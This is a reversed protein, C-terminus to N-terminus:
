RIGTEYALLLSLLSSVLHMNTSELVCLFLFLWFSSAIFIVHPVLHLSFFSTVAKCVYILKQTTKGREEEKEVEEGEMKVEAEEEEEEEEEEENWSLHFM